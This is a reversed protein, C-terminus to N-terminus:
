VALLDTSKIRPNKGETVLWMVFLSDHESNSSSTPRPRPRNLM